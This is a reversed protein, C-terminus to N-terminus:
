CRIKKLSAEVFHRRVTDFVICRIVLKISLFYFCRVPKVQATISFTSTDIRFWNRIIHQILQYILVTTDHFNLENYSNSYSATM